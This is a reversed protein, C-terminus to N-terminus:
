ASHAAFELSAALRAEVKERLATVEAETVVGAALLQAQYSDICDRARWAEEEEPSRYKVRQDSLSHGLYRYTMCELLVPGQKTRCFEAARSVADWVALVDMGNVVEAHLNGFASAAGRRALYDIGTVEGLQQGTM